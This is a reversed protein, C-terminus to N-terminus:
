PEDIRYIEMRWRFNGRTPSDAGVVVIYKPQNRPNLDRPIITIGNAIDDTMGTRTPNSTWVQVIEGAPNYKHTRWETDGWMAADDPVAWGTVYANGKGDIAVDNAIAERETFVHSYRLEGDPFFKEVTWLQTAFVPDFYYGVVVIEDKGGQEIAVGHARDADVASHDRNLTWLLIGEPTYKEIRWVESLTEPDNAQGVVVINGDKDTAVDYPIDVSRSPNSMQEWLLNGDADYKLIRWQADSGPDPTMEMGVVIINDNKDVAVATAIDNYGDTFDPTQVWLLTGDRDYKEIRWQSESHQDGVVIANGVSDVAVGMAKDPNVSPNSAISRVVNGNLNYQEIRWEGNPRPEEVVDIGVATITGTIPDHAVDNAFDWRASNFDNTYVINAVPPFPPSTPPTKTAPSLQKPHPLSFIARNFETGIDKPIQKSPTDKPTPPAGARRYKRTSVCQADPSTKTKCQASTKCQKGKKPGSDCVGGRAYNSIGALLGLGIVVALTAVGVRTRTKTKTTLSQGGQKLESM